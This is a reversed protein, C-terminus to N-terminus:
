IGANPLFIDLKEVLLAFSLRGELNEEQREKLMITWKEKTMWVWQCFPNQNVQNVWLFIPNQVIEKTPEYRERAQNQNEVCINIVVDDLSM